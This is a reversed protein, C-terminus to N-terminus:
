PRARSSLHHIGFAALLVLHVVLTLASTFAILASLGREQGILLIALNAFLLDKSPVLPLRSVLLRAAALILWTGVSVTPMGFHWAAAILLSGALLRTCHVGFIWRLQARPLSFLRRSFFLFPLTIAFTLAASWCGKAFQEPSLLSRGLPLALVLLALTVANGAIASLISVDKVAGFPAAVSRAHSRAWAYFFAEGSYGLVVDNAIRKKMLAALGPLRLGWLRRFIVFDFFPPSLYFLAFAAYYGAADPVAQTLGAMGSSLLQHAPAAIMALTLVAGILAPWRRRLAGLSPM